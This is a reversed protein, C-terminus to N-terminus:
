RLNGTAADVTYDRVRGGPLMVRVVYVLKDGQMKQQCRIVKGGTLERVKAVAEDESVAVAPGAPKGAAVEATGRSPRGAFAAAVALGLALGLILARRRIVSPM